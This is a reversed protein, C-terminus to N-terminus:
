MVVVNAGAEVLKEVTLEKACLEKM